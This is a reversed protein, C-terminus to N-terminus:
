LQKINPLKQKMNYNTIMKVTILTIIIAEHVKFMKKFNIKNLLLHYNLKLSTLLKCLIYEMKNIKQRIINLVALLKLKRSIWWILM